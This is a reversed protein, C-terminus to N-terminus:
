EIYFEVPKLVTEIDPNYYDYVRIAGGTVKEPYLAKYNIDISVEDELKLNRLYLNITGYGYEYKEIIKNYKLNLLSEEEVSTGQPISIQVLANAVENGSTNRIKLNQIIEENVKVNTNINQEIKFNNNEEINEYSTYYNQIIEYSIKGKKMNISIKNEKEVNDFKLEYVDLVDEKIELTKNEGNLTIEIKQNSIDSNKGYEVVAKLALVTSQTSYWTGNKDKKNILYNVLLNNTKDYKEANSFAISALSTAQINQVKGRTGYYDVTDTNLYASDSDVIIKDNLMELVIDKESSDTNVLVNAILALTYNDNVKDIKNELYRVTEELRADDPYAESIAWAIYATMALEDNSEPSGIYTSGYKFSGDLKQNDFLYELMNDLVNVDVEYVNSLEELEMLGFATIVTEAPDDGYLSYGGKEGPVEFTLLRQYGSSIYKLALEEIEKNELNNEYLYELALINPYLSSSTQEFCGTPMKFINEMGEIVHTMTSPYLKLTVQETDSIINNDDFWIDQELKNEISGSSVIKTKELGNPKVEINKEVIDTLGNSTAEIRLTNNGHKLIEIPVYIMTNNQASVLIENNYEGIESWENNIVKLDIQQDNETYNYLTVPISINDTVVSNTPLSFDIFFEKFVKISSNGYGVNGNKTNGVVQISWTTINDSIKIKETAQGNETVLEPIFVLSELFVNRVNETIKEEKYEEKNENQYENELKDEIENKLSTNKSVSDFLSSIESKPLSSGETNITTDINDFTYIGGDEIESFQPVENLISSSFKRMISSVGAVLVLILVIGIFIGFLEMRNFNSEIKRNKINIEKNERDIVKLIFIYVFIIFLFMSIMELMNTDIAISIIKYVIEGIIGGIVISSVSLIESISIKKSVNFLKKFKNEEKGRNILKLNAYILPFILLIIIGYGEFNEILLVAILPILILDIIMKFIIKEFKYLVLVYLIFSIAINVFIIEFDFQNLLEVSCISILAFVAIFNVMAVFTKKVKKIDKNKINILMLILVIIVLISIIVKGLNKNAITASTEVSVKKNNTDQKLLISMLSTESKEDIAMAYLDSASLDETLTINSLALKINDISLDNDSLNLVAEDLVSILLASDVNLNQEDKTEFSIVLNEKPKYEEKDTEINITLAKNPKIYITRKNTNDYLSNSESVYIDVIGYIDDLNVKIEDNETSVLKILQNGKYISIYKKSTNNNSNLNVEIDEGVDYKIKNTKLVTGNLVEIDLNKSFEVKEGNSNELALAIETVGSEINYSYDSNKTNLIEINKTDSASLLIKGIGNEDTIIQRSMDAIKINGYTKVPAGDIKKTVVYIENDINKIIKGYEPLIEIEFVNTCVNITKSAEVSYNSTDIIEFESEIKGKEKAVYTFEYKGNEDTLGKFDKNGVKGKVTANTVPEGFFYNASITINVNEGLLVEEKDSEIKAEFKPTIYPNVKFTKSVESNQTEVTIKYDGSNVENAITFKGSIIGYESSYVSESYVKNENGDYIYIYVDEEVPTDDKISTILARYNVEDGPKYIGKDLSISINAEKEDQILIPVTTKDKYIGSKSVIELNYKGPELDDPVKININAIDGKAIKYKEKTGKVKKNEEDKLVINVNSKMLNDNEINRVEVIAQIDDGTYYQENIAITVSQKGSIFMEVINYLTFIAVLVILILLFRQVHKKM